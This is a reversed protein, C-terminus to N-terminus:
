EQPPREYRVMAEGGFQRREVVEFGHDEVTSVAPDDPGLGIVAALGESDAFALPRDLLTEVADDDRAALHHIVVTEDDVDYSVYGAVGEDAGAGEDGAGEGEEGGDGSGDAAGDDTVAVVVTRDRIMDRLSRPAMSTDVAADRAIAALAEADDLVADRLRM